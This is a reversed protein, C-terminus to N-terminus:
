PQQKGPGGAKMRRGSLNRRVPRPAQRIRGRRDGAGTSRDEVRALVFLLDGLRNLYVVVKPDARLSRTRAVVTREARRAAARAVHLFASRRSEGPLVFSALRPLSAQFRDIETEFARVRDALCPGPARDRRSAGGALHSGVAFLDRQVSKLISRVPAGRAFARAAGLAASLEDVAGLAEIRPHGKRVRGGRLLGTWGRDGRRTYLGM